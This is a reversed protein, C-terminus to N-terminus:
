VKLTEKASEKEKKEVKKEVKQKEEVKEKKEKEVMKKIEEDFLYAKVEAGEKIARIKIKKEPNGIPNEFIKKNLNNSIKIKRIDGKMHRALFFKLIKIARKARKKRVTNYAKSLNVIYIREIKQTKEDAM